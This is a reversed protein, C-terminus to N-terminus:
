GLMFVRRGRQTYVQRRQGNLDLAEFGVRFAPQVLAGGVAFRLAGGPVPLGQQVREVLGV